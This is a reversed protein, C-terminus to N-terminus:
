DPVKTVCVFGIFHDMQGAKRIAELNQSASCSLGNRDACAKPGGAATREIGGKFRAQDSASLSHEFAEEEWALDAAKLFRVHASPCRIDTRDALAEFTPGAFIQLSGAPAGTALVTALALVILTQRRKSSPSSPM